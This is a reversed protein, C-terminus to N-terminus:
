GDTRAPDKSSSRALLVLSRGQLPYTKEFQATQLATDVLLEWRGSPLPFPVDGANANLLLLLDDDVVPSGHEDREGLGHGAILAGLCRASSRNWEQDNMEQGAYNLWVVDPDSQARGRFWTRRRFLPHANRLAILRRTFELLRRADDDLQWDVWSLESDHCYANNNGQQTRGMEDGALLLPVGQSFLLTALLNRKQKEKDAGANWSRNDDSGDRNDELNSENRKKEYTVLDHLTFGDHTTVFNVSATPGRGSREFVDSSGSLRSALEGVRGGDGKWYSRVADRYKDNWESWGSPFNGVQYGGDAVDWPEAFLKAGRLVPDQRVAALFAGNRDFGGHPGRALTAALDFRFGDVHM